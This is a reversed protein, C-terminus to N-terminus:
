RVAMPRKSNSGYISSFFHSHNLYPAGAIPSWMGSVTRGFSRNKAKMEFYQKVKTGRFIQDPYYMSM